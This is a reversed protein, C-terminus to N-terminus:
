ALLLEHTKEFINDDFHKWTGPYIELFCMFFQAISIGGFEYKSIM